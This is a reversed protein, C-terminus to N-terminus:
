NRFKRKWFIILNKMKEININQEFHLDRGINRYEKFLIIKNEKQLLKQMNQIERFKCIYYTDIKCIINIVHFLFLLPFTFKM